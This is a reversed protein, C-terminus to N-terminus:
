RRAPQTEGAIGLGDTLRELVQDRFGGYCTCRRPLDLNVPLDLELLPYLLRLIWAPPQGRRGRRRAAATRCKM